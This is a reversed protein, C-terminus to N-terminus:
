DIVSRRLHKLKGKRKKTEVRKIRSAASPQTPFRDKPKILAKKILEALRLEADNQNQEQTRYRKAIIVLVGDKTMKRGSLKVLRTKVPESLRACNRMDFRLQVATAVKNINQGGPGSSRIFTFYLEDDPIILNPTIQM